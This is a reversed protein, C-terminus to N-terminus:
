EEAEQIERFVGDTEVTVFSIEEAPIRVVNGCRTVTLRTLNGGLMNLLDSLETYVTTLLERPDGEVGAEEAKQLCESAAICDGRLTRSYRNDGTESSYEVSPSKLSVVIQLTGQLSM